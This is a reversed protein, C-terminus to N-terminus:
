RKIGKSLEQAKNKIIEDIKQLSAKEKWPTGVHLSIIKNNSNLNLILGKSPVGIVYDDRIADTPPNVPPLLEWKLAPDVLLERSIEQDCSLSLQKLLEKSFELDIVCPIKNVTVKYETENVKETLGLSKLARDKSIQFKIESITKPTIVQAPLSLPALLFIIFWIFKM